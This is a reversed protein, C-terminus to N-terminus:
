FRMAGHFAGDYFVMIIAGFFIALFLVFLLLIALGRWAFNWFSYIGRSLQFYSMFLYAGIVLFWLPGIPLHTIWAVLSLLLAYLFGGTLFFCNAVLHETYNYRLKKILWYSFLSLLPIVLLYLLKYYHNVTENLVEDSHKGSETWSRFLPEHLRQHDILARLAVVIIFLAFINYHKVRKGAIFSKAAYGPQYILTKLTYLVGKDLHFIGHLLDHQIFKKFTIRHTSSKQGCVHCFNGQLPTECNFCPTSM